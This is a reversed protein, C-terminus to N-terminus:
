KYTFRGANSQGGITDVVVQVAGRAHQPARVTLKGPTSVNVKKGAKNAFLV